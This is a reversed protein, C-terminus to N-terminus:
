PSLRPPPSLSTLSLREPVLPPLAAPSPAAPRRPNASAPTPAWQPARRAPAPGPRPPADPPALSRSPMGRLKDPLFSLSGRTSGDVAEALTPGLAFHRM